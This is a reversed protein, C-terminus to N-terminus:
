QLWWCWGDGACLWGASSMARSLKGRRITMTYRSESHLILLHGQLKQVKMEKVNNLEFNWDKRVGVRLESFIIWM